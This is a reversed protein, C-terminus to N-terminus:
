VNFIDSIQIKKKNENECINFKFTEIKKTIKLHFFFQVQVCRDLISLQNKIQSLFCSDLYALLITVFSTCFLQIAIVKQWIQHYFRIM